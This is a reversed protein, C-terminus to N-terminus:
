KQEGSEDVDIVRYSPVQAPAQGVGALRALQEQAAGAAYVTVQAIMIPAPKDEGAGRRYSEFVRTARALYGPQEREPRRSDKAINYKRPSWGAPRGDVLKVRPDVPMGDDDLEAAAAQHDMISMTKRRLREDARKVVELHRDAQTPATLAKSV